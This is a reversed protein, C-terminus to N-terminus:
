IIGNNHFFILWTVKDTLVYGREMEAMVLLPGMDTEVNLYWEGFEQGAPWLRTELKHVTSDDGRSLFIAKKEGIAALAETLTAAKAAGAPDTKPGCLLYEMGCFPIAEGAFGNLKRVYGDAVFTESVTTIETLVLDVMGLKAAAVTGTASTPKVEVTYGYTEEFLPLLADLVGSEALTDAVSLRIIKNEETANPLWGPFGPLREPVSFVCEGWQDSGFTEVIERAQDGQLWRILADVGETNLNPESYFPGKPDVALLVYQAQLAGDGSRLVTVSLPSGDEIATEEPPESAGTAAAAPPAVSPAVTEAPEEEECGCLLGMLLLAAFLALFKRM